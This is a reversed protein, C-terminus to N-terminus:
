LQRLQQQCQRVEHWREPGTREFSHKSCDLVVAAILIDLSFPLASRVPFNATGSGWGMALTGVDGGRDGFSNPGAPNDHADEGIVAVSKPKKLPLTKKVNKLLVTSKAGM